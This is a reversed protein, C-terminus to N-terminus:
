APEASRFRNSFAGGIVFKGSQVVAGNRDLEDRM